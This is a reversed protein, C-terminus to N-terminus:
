ERLGRRRASPGFAAVLGEVLRTTLDLTTLASVTIVTASEDTLPLRDLMAFLGDRHARDLDSHELLTRFAARPLATRAIARELERAPLPFGELIAIYGLLAVPHHHLVWYYQSGALAAVAPPPVRAAVTSPSGGLAALDELLWRDHDREEPIHVTLYDALAAAVPDSAALHAARTRATEMLPVSARASCHLLYLYEPMLDGLRPHTWLSRNAARVPGALLLLKERLRQSHTPPAAARRGTRARPAVSDLM